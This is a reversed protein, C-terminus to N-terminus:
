LSNKVITITKGNHHAHVIIPHVAHLVMSVPLLVIQWPVRRVMGVTTAHVLTPDQVIAM